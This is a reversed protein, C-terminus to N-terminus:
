PGLMWSHTTYPLELINQVCASIRHLVYVIITLMILVDHKSVMSHVVYSKFLRVIVDTQLNGFIANLKM